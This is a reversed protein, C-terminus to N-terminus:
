RPHLAAPGLPWAEQGETAELLPLETIPTLKVLVYLLTLLKGSILLAIAYRYPQTVQLVVEERGVAVAVEDIIREILIRVAAGVAPKSIIERYGIRGL